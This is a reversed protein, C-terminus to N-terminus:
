QGGKAPGRPTVDIVDRVKSALLTQSTWGYRARYIDIAHDTDIAGHIVVCGDAGQVAVDGVRPATM